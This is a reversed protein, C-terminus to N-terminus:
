VPLHNADLGAGRSQPADPRIARLGQADDGARRGKFFRVAWAVAAAIAAFLFFKKLKGGKKKGGEAESTGNENEGNEAM